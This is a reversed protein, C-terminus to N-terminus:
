KSCGPDAHQVLSIISSITRQPRHVIQRSGKKKRCDSAMDVCVNGGCATVGRISGLLRQNAFHCTRFTCFPNCRSRFSRVIRSKDPHFCPIPYLPALDPQSLYPVKVEYTIAQPSYRQACPPYWHLTTHQLIPLRKLFVSGGIFMTHGQLCCRQNLYVNSFQATCTTCPESVKAKCNGCSVGWPAALPESSHGKQNPITYVYGGGKLPRCKEMNSHFTCFFGLFHWNARHQCM